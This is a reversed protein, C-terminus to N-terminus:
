ECYRVRVVNLETMTGWAHAWGVDGNSFNAFDGRHAVAATVTEPGLLINGAGDDDGDGSSGPHFGIWGFRMM